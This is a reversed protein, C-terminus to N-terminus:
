SPLVYVLTLTIRCGNCLFVGSPEPVKGKHALEILILNFMSAVEQVFMRGLGRRPARINDLPDHLKLAYLPSDSM